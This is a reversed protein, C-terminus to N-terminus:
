LLTYSLPEENIYSLQVAHVHLTLGCHKSIAQQHNNPKATIRLATFNYAQYVEKADQLFIIQFASPTTSPFNLINSVEEASM